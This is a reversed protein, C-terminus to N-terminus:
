QEDPAAAPRVAKKVTKKAVTRKAAKKAAPRRPAPVDGPDAPAAARTAARWPDGSGAAPEPTATAAGPDDTRPADPASPTVAGGFARLVGAVGVALDGAATALRDALEPSPDRMASLLRCVPCVCCETAETGWRGHGAPGTPSGTLGAALDQLQRQIEARQMAVSAAGLLGAVLREAEQRPDAAM